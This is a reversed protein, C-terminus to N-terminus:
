RNAFGGLIEFVPRMAELFSAWGDSLSFGNSLMKSVESDGVEEAGNSTIMQPKHPKYSDATQSTTACGSVLLLIALLLIMAGPHKAARLALLAIKEPSTFRKASMIRLQYPSEPM